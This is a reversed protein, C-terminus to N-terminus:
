GRATDARVIVLSCSGPSASREVEPMPQTSKFSAYHAVPWQDARHRLRYPKAGLVELYTQAVRQTMATVSFHQNVRAKGAAGMRSALLPDALLNRIAKALASPDRPPVLVGTIGNEVAEPIGGVTTAVVARGAAMAELISLPLGELMSPLVFLDCSSLLEPIDTRFGLFVVREVIDLRQAQRRLAADEPGDGVLVLTVDPVGSIADLLVSHGKM